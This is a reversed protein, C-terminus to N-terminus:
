GELPGTVINYIPLYFLGPFDFAQGYKVLLHICICHLAFIFGFKMGCLYILICIDIRCVMVGVTVM